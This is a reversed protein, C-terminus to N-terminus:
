GPQLQQVDNDTDQFVDGQAERGWVIGGGWEAGLTGLNGDDQEPLRKLTQLAKLAKRHTDSLQTPGDLSSSPDTEEGAEHLSRILEDQLEKVDSANRTEKMLSLLLVSSLGNHIFAWSRRAYTTVSRLSIYARASRKLADRLTAVLQSTEPMDSARTIGGSVLPSCLTSIVFNKHLQFAYHEQTEQLTRCRQQEKLHPLLAAEIAAMDRLFSEAKTIALPTRNPSLQGLTAHCLWNMAHRYTLGRNAESTTLLPLDDQYDM